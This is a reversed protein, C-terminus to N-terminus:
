KEDLLKAYMEKTQKAIIRWDFYVEVRKRGNEGFKKALSKDNLLINIKEALEKPKQPEVFFGTEGEVVVEKIGGVKSAVVPTKCAMAELNIIGFPEYISPCAFVSANSYLEIYQEEKLLKNIWLTNTTENMKETLMQEIEPTDPASTCFVVKAKIDKAAEILYIMGKQITTRGVFLVYEEDIGYEKLTHGTLTEKWKRTDIGNYIVAIKKEDINFYKLIDEKMMKSVAVVRDANEIGLKEVWSSLRYGAGLQEEKWPRLPELSHSTLVFKNNYLIKALFGAFAAYWTHTHVIDSDMVDNVISLDIGLTDLAKSIRPDGDFDGISSYGKVRYGNETIDQDGFTRVEVDILKRLEQVLYRVHVGAGGYVNPPYEKSIFTVKM